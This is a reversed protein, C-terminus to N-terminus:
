QPASQCAPEAKRQSRGTTESPHTTSAKQWPSPMQFYRQIVEMAPKGVPRYSTDKQPDTPQDPHNAWEWVLYGAVTKERVWTEFFAKFCRAQLQPDPKDTAAYYNWPFEAATEQNPWGVETFLLPRRVTKQWALIDERIETWRRLIAEYSPDAGKALTFYTTLGVIDLDAWFKPVQYHDWNASYTLRASSVKRVEAILASWRDTQTETSILESGVAFIEVEGEEALRAYHLVFDSYDQWWANWNGPKIEGRWENSRRQSLLVVPMVMVRLGRDHAHDILKALHADSPTKRADITIAQSSANEQYAHLVLCVTNAGTKSIETIFREYPHQPDADNLQLCIGRFEGGQSPRMPRVPDAIPSTQESPLYHLVVVLLLGALFLVLLITNRYM